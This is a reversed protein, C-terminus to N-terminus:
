KSSLFQKQKLMSIQFLPGLWTSIDSIWFEMHMGFEWDFALVRTLRHHTILVSYCRPWASFHIAFHLAHAVLLSLSHTLGWFASIGFVVAGMWSFM